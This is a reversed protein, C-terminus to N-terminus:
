LAVARFTHVHLCCSVYARTPLVLRLCTYAARFTSVHVHQLKPDTFTHVNVVRLQTCLFGNTAM